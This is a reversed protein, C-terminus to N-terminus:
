ESVFKLKLCSSCECANMENVKKTRKGERGTLGLDPCNKPPSICHQSHSTSRIAGLGKTQHKVM